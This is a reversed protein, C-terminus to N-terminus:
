ANRRESVERCKYYETGLPYRNWNPEFGGKEIWEYLNHCWEDVEDGTKRAQLFEDIMKLTEDPDM